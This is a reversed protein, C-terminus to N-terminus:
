MSNDLVERLSKLAINLHREVTRYSIGLKEAIERISLGDMRSLKFVNKRQAPMTEIQQELIDRILSADVASVISDHVADIDDATKTGMQAPFRREARFHDAIEHRTITYLYNNFNKQPDLLRRKTWVKLFTEQAIDEAHHINRVMGLAFNCVGPYYYEFVARFAKMDGERIAAVYKKENVM